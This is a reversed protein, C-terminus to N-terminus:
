SVLRGRLAPRLRSRHGAGKPVGGTVREGGDGPGRRIGRAGGRVGRAEQRPARVGEHHHLVAVRQQQAGLQGHLSPVAQRPRRRLSRGRVERRLHEGRGHREGRHLGRGPM